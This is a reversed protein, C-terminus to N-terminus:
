NWQLEVKKRGWKFAKKLDKGMYIDIKKKWRKNMKDLVLYEGDLGKIRVKSRHKLGYVNLMDRSVAIVKMGPKLRDGWAAINPTSDTQNVHSTYATATVTMQRRFPGNAHSKTSAVRAKKRSKLLKKARALRRAKRQKIKALKLAKKKKKGIKQWIKALQLGYDIPEKGIYTLFMKETKHATINMLIPTPYLESAYHNSAFSRRCIHSAVLEHKPYVGGIYRKKDEDFKNGKVMTDIGALKCLQKLYRNFM